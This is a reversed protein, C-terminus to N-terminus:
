CRISSKSSIRLRCTTTRPADMCEPPFTTLPFPIWRKWWLLWHRFRRSRRPSLGAKTEGEKVLHFRFDEPAYKELWHKACTAKRVLRGMQEPKVDSLSAIAEEVNMEHIQLLNCLHRFPIQYSIMKPVDESVQSLEYIRKEYARRKESVPLVGFYIRECNDYDEYLKLM